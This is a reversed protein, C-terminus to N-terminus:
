KQDDQLIILYKSPNNSIINANKRSSIGISAIYKHGSEEWITQIYWM